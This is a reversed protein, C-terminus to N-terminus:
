NWSEWLVIQTISDRILGDWQGDRTGKNLVCLTGIAAIKAERYTRCSKHWFAGIQVDYPASTVNREARMRKLWENRQYEATRGRRTVFNMREALIKEFKNM